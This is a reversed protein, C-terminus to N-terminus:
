NIVEKTYTNYNQLWAMYYEGYHNSKCNVAGSLPTMAKKMDPLIEITRQVFGKIDDASVGYKYAVIKLGYFTDILRYCMKYMDENIFGKDYLICLM